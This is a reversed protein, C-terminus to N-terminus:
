HFAEVPNPRRRRRRRTQGDDEAPGGPSLGGSTSIRFRAFTEGLEAHEPVVIRITRHGEALDGPHQWTQDDNWDIWAQVVGEGHVEFAIDAAQSRILTPITM